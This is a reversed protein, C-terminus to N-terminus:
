PYAPLIWPIKEPPPVPTLLYVDVYRTSWLGKGRDADDFCLDIHLGKIAGGIDEAAGFGYGPVYMRTHFPIVRPDIAIIGRTARKGTYTIGYLPHDPEKDCTSPYYSTALMRLKRWYEIPGDPTQLTRIVIKTGYYLVEDAPERVVREGLFRRGVEKGDAYTVETVLEKIGEAGPQLRHHDLEMTPDPEQRYAYPITIAETEELTTIRVIRIATTPALPSKMPPEVQDLPGLSLGEATLLDGVTRAQTRTTYTRGDVTIQVPTAREIYAHLGPSIPTEPPPQLRDARYLPIDAAELAEGLTAQTTRLELPVGGDHIYIPVARRIEVLVTTPAPPLAARHRGSDDPGTARLFAREDAYASEPLPSGNIYVLDHPHLTVGSYALVELLSRPRGSFRVKGGDARVIVLRNRRVVIPRDAPWPADPPPWVEDGEQLTLGAEELVQGVLRHHTHLPIPQGDLDITVPRAAVQYGAVAGGVLALLGVLWGLLQWPRNRVIQAPKGPRNIARRAPRM